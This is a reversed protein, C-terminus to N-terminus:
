LATISVTYISHERKKRSASFEYWFIGEPVLKREQKLVTRQVDQNTDGKQISLDVLPWSSGGFLRQFNHHLLITPRFCGFELFMNGKSCHRLVGIMERELVPLFEEGFATRNDRENSTSRSEKQLGSAGIFVLFM